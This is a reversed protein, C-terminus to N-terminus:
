NPCSEALTQLFDKDFTKSETRRHKSNKRRRRLKEHHSEGESPVPPKPATNPEPQPPKTEVKAPAEEPSEQAEIKKKTNFTQFMWDEEELCDKLELDADDVIINKEVQEEQGTLSIYKQNNPREVSSKQSNQIIQMINESTIEKEDKVKSNNRRNKNAARQSQYDNEKVASFPDFGDQNKGELSTENQGGSCDLWDDVECKKTIREDTLDHENADSIDHGQLDHTVIENEIIKPEEDKLKDYEGNLYHTIAKSLEKMKNVPLSVSESNQHKAGGLVFFKTSAVIPKRSRFSGSGVRSHVSLQSKLPDMVQEELLEDVASTEKRHHPKPSLTEAIKQNV